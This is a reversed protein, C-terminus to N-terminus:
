KTTYAMIKLRVLNIGNESMFDLFNFPNESANKYSNNYSELESQFLLDM